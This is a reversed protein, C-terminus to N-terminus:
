TSTRRCGAWARDGRRGAGRHAAWVWAIAQLAPDTALSAGLDERIVPLAMTVVLNDLTVMFLGISTVAFAWLASSRATM